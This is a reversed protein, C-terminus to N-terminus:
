KYFFKSCYLAHQYRKFDIFFLFFAVKSRLKIFNLLEDEDATIETRFSFRSTAKM